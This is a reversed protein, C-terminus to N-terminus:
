WHTKTPVRNQGVVLQKVFQQFLAFHIVRFLDVGHCIQAYFSRSGCGTMSQNRNHNPFYVAKVTLRANPIHPSAKPFGLLDLLTTWLELSPGNYVSHALSVVESETTSRSVSTQRKSLCSSFNYEAGQPSGALRTREGGCTATGFALRGRLRWCNWMTQVIQFQHDITKM